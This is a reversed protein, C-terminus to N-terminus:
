TQKPPKRITRVTVLAGCEPCESPCEMTSWMTRCEPCILRFEGEGAKLSFEKAM